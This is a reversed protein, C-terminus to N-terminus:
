VMNILKIFEMLLKILLYKLTKLTTAIGSSNTPLKLDTWEQNINNYYVRGFSTYIYTSKFYNENTPYILNDQISLIKGYDNQWNSNQATNSNLNFNFLGRSSAIYILNLSTIINSSKYFYNIEDNYQIASNLNQPYLFTKGIGTTLINEPIFTLSEKYRNKSYHNILLNNTSIKGSTISYASLSKIFDNSLNNQIETKRVKIIIKLDEFSYLSYNPISNKLLITGSYPNIEYHIQDIIVDSLFVEATDYQFDSWSFNNYRDTTLGNTDTYQYITGDTLNIYSDFTLSSSLLQQNADIAKLTKDLSLPLFVQVKSTTKVPQILFLKNNSNISFQSSNLEVGDVKVIPTGYSSTSDTFLKGDSYTLIFICSNEYSSTGDSTTATLVLYNALDIKAATNVDGLHKHKLYSLQLQRQFEGSSENIQNRRNEYIIEDVYVFDAFTSDTKYIISALYVANSYTNYKSDPIEPSTINCIEDTLTSIGDEAWAYYTNAVTHRFYQSKETKGAYKSIIGNGASVKFCQKFANLFFLNTSGLSFNLLSAAGIWLTKENVTGASVYIVFNNSYDSSSDLSSHRSWSSSSVTYIGNQSATSQDKVLVIDGAVVSIGDITQAGSLTINTTTAADCSLTFDLNLLSLKQGYESSASSNFGDLLLLQDSRSDELKTVNWGNIIGPGFFSYIGSFNSEATLMNEYDYGPYWIDGFQSYLFKYISTRNAM